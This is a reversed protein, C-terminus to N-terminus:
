YKLRVVRCKLEFSCKFELLPMRIDKRRDSTKDLVAASSFRPVMSENKQEVFWLSCRRGM